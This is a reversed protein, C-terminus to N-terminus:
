PPVDRQAPNHRGSGGHRRRGATAKSIFQLQERSLPDGCFWGAACGNARVADLVQRRTFKRLPIARYDEPRFVQNKTPDFILGTRKHVLWSHRVGLGTEFVTYGQVLWVDDREGELVIRCCLEHCRKHLTKFRRLRKIEEAFPDGDTVM